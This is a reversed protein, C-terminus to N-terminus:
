DPLLTTSYQIRGTSALVSPPPIRDSVLYRGFFRNAPFRRRRYRFAAWDATSTWGAWQAPADLGPRIRSPGHFLTTVHGAGPLEIPAYRTRALLGLDVSELSDASWVPFYYRHPQVEEWRWQSPDEGFREALESVAEVLLEYRVLNLGLASDPISAEPLAGIRERYLHTWTDFISAAIGARDYRYDWNRLYALAETVLLPQDPVSVAAYTLSPALSAAWTSHYDNLFMPELTSPADNLSDLRAAAFLSWVSNGVATGRAHHYVFQPSGVVQASGDRRMVLGDGGNVRFDVDATTPLALWAEADDVLELGPWQLAWGPRLSSSPEASADVGSADVAASDVPAPDIFATDAPAAATSTEFFLAGEERTVDIVVERGDATELKEFVRRGGSTDRVAQSLSASSSLLVSWAHTASRGAVMFPTGILTAGALDAEPYTMEVEQLVPLASAGFVFRHTLSTGSSDEITWAMSADFGHLHLWRRLMDDTAYFARLTEPATRLSDTPPPETALWAFLRHVALAYWPEWPDPETNLVSFEDAGRADRLAANAGRAYADLLTREEDLLTRYSAEALAAFGLRRSLRDIPVMEDGMWASLRGRATRQWLTMSWAHESAHLFGLAAFADVRSQARVSASGDEYAVVTATDALGPVLADGPPGDALGYALYLLSGIGGVVCGAIVLVVAITKLM